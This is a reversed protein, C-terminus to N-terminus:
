SKLTKYLSAINKKLATKTSSNDLVFDAMKMKQDLPMQSKIRKDIQEDTLGDRSKLRARQVEPAAYIVVIKDCIRDLGVEFLLPANIVVDYKKIKKSAIVNIAAIIRAHIIKELKLKKEYDNFIIDGLRRRNLAGDKQLIDRGFEKTIEKVLPMGKATLKHSIEDADIVYAGLRAFYKASESKGTAISGTLGIIM